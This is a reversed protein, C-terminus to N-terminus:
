KTVEQILKMFETASVQGKKQIFDKPTNDGIEFVLAETKFNEFLYSFLTFTPPKFYLPKVHPTYGPIGEKVKNL